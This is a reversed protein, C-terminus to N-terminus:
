HMTIDKDSSKDPIKDESKEFSDFLLQQTRERLYRKFYNIFDKDTFSIFYTGDKPSIRFGSEIQPDFRVEVSKNMVEMAKADFFAALEKRKKEPLLVLLDADDDQKWNQVATLIMEKIFALDKFDEKIQNETQQTTILGNIKQKLASIFQRAALQLEVETKKKIEEANQQAKRIMEAEQRKAENLIETAKSTAESIIIRADEKAKVVGENYIKQTIEEIRDAM